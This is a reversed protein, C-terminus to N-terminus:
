WNHNINVWKKNNQPNKNQQYDPINVRTNSKLLWFKPLAQIYPITLYHTFSMAV